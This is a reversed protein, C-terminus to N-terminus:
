RLSSMCVLLIFGTAIIGYAIFTFTNIQENFAFSAVFIILMPSIFQCLGAYLLTLNKIALLYLALPIIVVFGLPLLTLVENFSISFRERAFFLFPILLPTIILSEHFLSGLVDNNNMKKHSTIYIAFSSAIILGFIPLQQNKVILIIVGSLSIILPIIELKEIKESLFVRGCLITFFPLILYGLSAEITRGAQIALFYSLWNILLLLATIVHRKAVRLSFHSGKIFFLILFVSIVQMFIVDVYSIKKLHYFYVPTLGWIINALIAFFLSM